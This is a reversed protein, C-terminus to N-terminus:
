AARQYVVTGERLARRVVSGPTGRAQSVRATTTVIVDVDLALRAVAKIADKSCKEWLEEDEIEVLLDLDSDSRARAQATSGFLIIKVPRCTMVLRAVAEALM